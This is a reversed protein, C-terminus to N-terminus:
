PMAKNDTIIRGTIKYTVGGTGKSDGQAVTITSIPTMPFTGANLASAINLFANFDPNNFFLSFQLSAAGDKKEIAAMTMDDPNLRGKLEDYKRYLIMEPSSQQAKQDLQSKILALAQVRNASADKVKTLGAQAQTIDDLTKELVKRTRMQSVSAVALTFLLLAAMYFRMVAPKLRNKNESNM